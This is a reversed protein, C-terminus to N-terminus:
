PWGGRKQILTEQEMSDFIDEIHKSAYEFIADGQELRPNHQLLELWKNRTRCKEDDMLVLIQQKAWEEVTMAARRKADKEKESPPRRAPDDLFDFHCRGFITIQYLWVKHEM